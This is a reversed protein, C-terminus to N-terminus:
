VKEHYFLIEDLDDMETKMTTLSTKGISEIAEKHNGYASQAAAKFEQPSITMIQTKISPKPSPITLEIDGVKLHTIGSEHMLKVLVKIAKVQQRDM